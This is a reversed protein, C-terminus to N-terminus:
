LNRLDRGSISFLYTFSRMLSQTLTSLFTRQGTFVLYNNYKSDITSLIFDGIPVTKQGTVETAVSELYYTEVQREKQWRSFHRTERYLGSNALLQKARIGYIHRYTCLVRTNYRVNRHRVPIGLDILMDKCVPDAIIESLVEWSHLFTDGELFHDLCGYGCVELEPGTRLRAGDAKARRISELIRKKNGDFDLPV